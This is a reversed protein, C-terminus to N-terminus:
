LKSGEREALNSASNYTGIRYVTLILYWAARFLLWVIVFGGIIGGAILNLGWIGVTGSYGYGHSNSM